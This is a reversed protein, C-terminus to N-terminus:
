LDFIVTIEPNVINVSLMHYTVAKIETRPSHKSLDLLEGRCHCIVRDGKFVVDFDSLIVGESDHIFLLESLLAFLRQEAGEEEVEVSFSLDNNVTSLDVIQDFMAFAANQFCEELSPARCRIMLDATHDM